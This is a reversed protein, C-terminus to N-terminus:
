SPAMAAVDPCTSSVAAFTGTARSFEHLKSRCAFQCRIHSDVRNKDERQTKCGTALLRRVVPILKAPGIPLPDGLRIADGNLKTGVRVDQPLGRDRRSVRRGNDPASADEDGGDFGGVLLSKRRQGDVAGVALDEPSPDHLGLRLPVEM